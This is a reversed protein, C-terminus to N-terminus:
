VIREAKILKRTHDSFAMFIDKTEAASAEMIATPPIDSYLVTCACGKLM